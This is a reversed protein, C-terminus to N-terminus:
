APRWSGTAADLAVWAQGDWRVWAGRAPDWQSDPTPPSGTPGAAAPAAPAAPGGGPYGAPGPAAPAPYSAAAYAAAGPQGTAGKAPVQVPTGKFQKGVVYTGGAMDGVRRHGRSVGATIPGVLPVVCGILDVILLLNRLIARGVGCASGNAKVTRIGCMAKGPTAGTLGQLLWFVLVTYIGSAVYAWVLDGQDVLYTTNGSSFCLGANPLETCRLAFPVETYQVTLAAVIGVVINALIGDVIFAAYRRGMVATPDVAPATTVM